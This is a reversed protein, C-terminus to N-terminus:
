STLPRNKQLPEQCCSCWRTIRLLLHTTCSWHIVKVCRVSVFLKIIKFPSYKKLSVDCFSHCILDLLLIWKPPMTRSTANKNKVILHCLQFAFLCYKVNLM